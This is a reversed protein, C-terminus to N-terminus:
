ENEFDVVHRVSEFGRMLIIRRPQICFLAGRETFYAAMRNKDRLEALMPDYEPDEPKLEKALGEIVVRDFKSWDNRIEERNDVLFSVEPTARINRTHQPGAGSGFLLRGDPLLHFLVFTVFAGAIIVDGYSLNMIRAVGYQLTLGMAVLAYTGGLVLGTLLASIFM